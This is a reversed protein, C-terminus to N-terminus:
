AKKLRRKRATVYGAVGAGLAIMSAPEPIPQSSGKSALMVAGTFPAILGLATPSILQPSEEPIAPAMDEIIIADYESIPPEITMATVSTTSIGPPQEAILERVGTSSQLAVTETPETRGLDTGRVMPNGCSIRMIYNGERDVWVPTGKRYFLVRAGINGTDPSNYLLYAGDEAIQGKKLTKFYSVVEDPTMGFHRVFRSMVEKDSRVHEVLEEITDAPKKIFSGTEMRQAFSVSGM